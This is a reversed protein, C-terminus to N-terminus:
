EACIQVRGPDSSTDLRVNLFQVKPPMTPALTVSALLKGRECDVLWQGRLANEV